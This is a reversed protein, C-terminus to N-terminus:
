APGQPCVRPDGDRHDVAGVRPAPDRDAAAHDLDTRVRFQREDVLQRAAVGSAVVHHPRHLALDEHDLRFADARSGPPPLAEAGSWSWRRRWTTECCGPCPPTARTSAGSATRAPRWGAPM